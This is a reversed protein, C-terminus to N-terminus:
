QSTRWMHGNPWGRITVNKGDTELIVAGDDATSFMESRMARYRDVVVPAPHGFRNNRGASIIVASPHLADLFPQTSSTASGHHPAKLVVLPTQALGGLMGSEREHEIHRLVHAEGEQGIDGPLVVLVHGYRIGLVISDDNRVRQREWDPLPPHLTRIDVAGVRLRDGTQVTRWEIGARQAAAIVANLPAHAPVPVGEWIAHPDFREVVSIAGGIHDPDGHTLVLADLARVGLARLAKALVREGIDFTPGDSPDQLPPAPLGGTDVLIARHDPLQVLTADGQGVDLFVVRLTAPPPAPVRDRATLPAGRVILLGCTAAIFLTSGRIRVPTLTLAMATYYGVVLWWAPPSVDRALWPTIDMLRASDVLGRSALHVVLGGIRGVPAVILSAGLIVLSGAQVITMLPIAAFNLIFGAFTVRAFLAAAAPLLALEAAATAALLGVVPTFVRRTAGASWASTVALLRPVGILIGLTAGFSLIFGADLVAVPAVAVGLAGAVALTNLPPGRHDLVHATLYLVAAAIARDVSPSSGTIRGYLLLVAIATLAAIRPPARLGQLVTMLVVTLIAINGGSIAIVHYTGAEQLRREDDQPLGTRDGLVIAVAIAASRASWVGVTSALTARAWARVGSAWEDLPSGRATVEVLAGSKVSGVLAIGRRALARRENPVGPDLYVTPERVSAAVRVSRGARWEHVREPALTGAISLRVGGLSRRGIEHQEIATVDLALSVGTAMVAADDRLTGRLVAMEREAKSARAYWEVLPPRYARNAATTGLSVGVVLTGVIVGVTCQDPADDIFAGIAATLAILAAAAAHLAISAPAKDGALVGYASGIILPIAILAAPARM